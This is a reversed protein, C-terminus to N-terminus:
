LVLAGMERSGMGCLRRCCEGGLTRLIRCGGACWLSVRVCSFLSTVIKQKQEKSEREREIVGFRHKRASQGCIWLGRREYSWDAVCVVIDTRARLISPTETAPRRVLVWWGYFNVVERGYIIFLCQMTASNPSPKPSPVRVRNKAHQQQQERSNSNHRRKCAHLRCLYGSDRLTAFQRSSSSSSREIFAHYTRSACTHTNKTHKTERRARM